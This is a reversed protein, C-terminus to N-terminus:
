EFRFVDVIRTQSLSVLEWDAATDRMGDAFVDYAEKFSDAGVLMQEVSRREKDTREDVTVVTVKALWYKDAGFGWMDAIKTRRASTAVFEGSMYPRMKDIVVTEAEALSEADVLYRESVRKVVGDEFRRDYSIVVEIYQIM